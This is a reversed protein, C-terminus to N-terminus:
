GNRWRAFIATPYMGERRLPYPRYRSTPVTDEAAATLVPGSLRTAASDLHGGRAEDIAIALELDGDGPVRARLKRWEVLAAAYEGHDEYHRALVADKLVSQLAGGDTAGTTSDPPPATPAAPHAAAPPPPPTTTTEPSRVPATAACGAVGLAGLLAALAAAGLHLPLGHKASPTSTM